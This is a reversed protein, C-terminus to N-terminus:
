RQITFYLNDIYHGCRSRLASMFVVACFCLRVGAVGPPRSFLSEAPTLHQRKGSVFQTATLVPSASSRARTQNQHRTWNVTNFTLWSSPTRFSLGQTVTPLSSGIKTSRLLIYTVTRHLLTFPYRLNWGSVCVRVCVCLHAYGSSTQSHWLYCPLTNHLTTIIARGAHTHTHTHTIYHRHRWLEGSVVEVSSRQVDRPKHRWVLKLLGSDSDAISFKTLSQKTIRTTQRNYSQYLITSFNVYFVAFNSM